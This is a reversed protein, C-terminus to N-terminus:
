GNRVWVNGGLSSVLGSMELLSLTSTVALFDLNTAMTIQEVNKAEFGLNEYILKQIESDFKIAKQLDIKSLHQLGLLDFIDESCTIISVGNKLLQINGAFSVDLISAPTTALNKGLEIALNATILSGSKLSAQVVWTLDTLSALIKNRSPFNYPNAKTGLCFQSIVLGGTAIIKKKLALNSSPYFNDDDLGSGIVGITPCDNEVALKHALGDIGLALGSVVPIKQKCVPELIRKLIIESYKSYNRSGVVTIGSGSNLLELNGQCYLVIPPDTLHLLSQPYLKDKVTVIEIQQRQNKDLFLQIDSNYDGLNQLKTAWKNKISNLQNFGDLIGDLLHNYQLEITQLKKASLSIKSDIWALLQNENFVFKTFIFFWIIALKQLPLIHAGYKKGV